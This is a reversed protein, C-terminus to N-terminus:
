DTFAPIVETGFLELQKMADRHALGPWHAKFMFQTMGLEDRLAGLRDVCEASSGLIFQSEVDIADPNAAAATNEGSLGWKQYTRYRLSSRERAQTIAEARTSAILLERRLPFAGDLSLGLTEREELFIKRLEALGDHSPFPPAYWADGVRAARRVAPESQGGVWIPPRPRQVPVVAPTVGESRWFRGTFNVEEGSWLEKILRLGEDFRAIKLKPDVGFAQFERDSYGLGVGFICKGETLADLTAISEALEVPNVMSLLM